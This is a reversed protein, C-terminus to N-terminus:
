DHFVVLFLIAMLFFVFATIALYKDTTDIKENLKPSLISGFLPLKKRLTIVILCTGSILLSIFGLLYFM